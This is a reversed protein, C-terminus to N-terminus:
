REGREEWPSPPPSPTAGQRESQKLLGGSGQGTTDIGCGTGRGIDEKEGVAKPGGAVMVGRVPGEAVAKNRAPEWVTSVM